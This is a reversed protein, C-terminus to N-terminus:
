ASVSRAPDRVQGGPALRRDGLDTVLALADPTEVHEARCLAELAALDADVLREGRALAGRM